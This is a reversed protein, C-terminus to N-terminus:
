KPQMKLACGNICYRQGGAERPGDPFVHGLHAGCNQCHVEVRRMGHSDDFDQGVASGNAPQTFSPWGTGSDFKADSEFLKAGCVVCSFTAPDKANLLESSGPMETGRQQTIRYQEATLRDRLETDTLTPLPRKM